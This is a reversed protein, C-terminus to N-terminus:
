PGHCKWLVSVHNAGADLVMLAPAHNPDAKLLEQVRPESQALDKSAETLATMILFWKAADAQPNQPAISLSRQMAQNAETVQGISYAAWGLDHFLEANNPQRVSTERLLSYGYAVGVGLGILTFM